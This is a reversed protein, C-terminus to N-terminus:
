FMFVLQSELMQVKQNMSKKMGIPELSIISCVVTTANSCSKTSVNSQLQFSSADKIRQQLMQLGTDAMKEMERFYGASIELMLHCIRHSIVHLLRLYYQSHADSNEWHGQNVFSFRRTRPPSTPLMWILVVDSIDVSACVMDGGAMDVADDSIIGVDLSIPLSFLLLLM